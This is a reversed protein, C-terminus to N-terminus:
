IWTFDLSNIELNKFGYSFGFNRKLNPNKNLDCNCGKQLFHVIEHIFVDESTGKGNIMDAVQLMNPSIILCNDDTVYANAVASTQKYIKLDSLVCKLRDPNIDKNEKIYKNAIEVILTCIERIENNDLEKYISTKATKKYEKNNKLIINYLEDVTLIKLESSHSNVLNLKDYETLSEDFKYLKEYKYIIDLKDLYNEISNYNNITFNIKINTKEYGSIDKMPIDYGDFTVTQTNNTAQNNEINNNTTPDVSSYSYDTKSNDNKYRARDGNPILSCGSLTITVALTIPLLVMKGKKLINNSVKLNKM